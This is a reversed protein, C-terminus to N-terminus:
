VKRIMTTIVQVIIPMEISQISVPESIMSLKLTM